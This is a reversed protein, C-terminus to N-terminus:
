GGRSCARKQAEASKEVVASGLLNFTVRGGLESIVRLGALRAVLGVSGAFEAISIPIMSFSADSERFCRWCAICWEGGRVVIGFAALWFASPQRGGGATVRLNLGGGFVAADM